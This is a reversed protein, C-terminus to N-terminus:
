SSVNHWVNFSGERVKGLDDVKCLEFVKSEAGLKLDSDGSSQPQHEMPGPLHVFQALPNVEIRGFAADSDASCEDPEPLTWTYLFGDTAAYFNRLDNPLRVGQKFEWQMIDAEPVGPRRSIYTDVIGIFALTEPLGLLMNGYFSDESVKDIVFQM